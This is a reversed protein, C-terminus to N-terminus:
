DLSSPRIIPEIQVLAPEIRQLAHLRQCHNLQLSSEGCASPLSTSATSSAAITNASARMKPEDGLQVSALRLWRAGEQDNKPAGQGTLYASAVSVMAQAEGQEAARRYWAFANTADGQALYYDGLKTQQKALGEEAQRMITKISPFNADTEALRQAEALASAAVFIMLAPLFRFRDCSSM